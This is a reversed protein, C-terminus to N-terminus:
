QEVATLWRDTGDGDAAWGQVQDNQIQWWTLGDQQEPGSQVTFQAGPLVRATATAQLGAAERVTLVKGEQTTVQVRDGVQIARNVLKGGGVAPTVAANAEPKLWPDSAPGASVWGTLGAGNDIQWWLYSDAETPGGVIKVVSDPNLKGVQQGSTSAADRVNLGGGVTVRASMGNELGGTDISPTATPSPAVTAETPAPPATPTSEVIESRTAAAQAELDAPPTPTPRSRLQFGGCALTALLLMCAPLVIRWRAAHGQM